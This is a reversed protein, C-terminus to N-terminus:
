VTIPYNYHVSYFINEEPANALTWQVDGTPSIKFDTGEYYRKGDADLLLNVSDASYKLIDVEGKERKITETFTTTYDILEVKAFYNLEVGSIFTADVSQDDWLGEKDLKTKSALNAFSSWSEIPDLDVFGNDCMKCRTEHYGGLSKLNPCLMTKYVRVRVGKDQILQDLEAFKFESYPAKISFDRKKPLRKNKVAM